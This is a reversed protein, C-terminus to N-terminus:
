EQWRNKFPEWIKRMIFSKIKKFLAVFIGGGIISITITLGNAINDLFPIVWMAYDFVLLSFFLLVGLFGACLICLAMARNWYRVIKNFKEVVIDKKASEEKAKRLQGSLDENRRNLDVKDASLTAIQHDKLASDNRVRQIVDESIFDLESSVNEKSLDEPSKLHERFELICAAVDEDTIKKNKYQESIEEYKKKIEVSTISSLAMKARCVVDFSVMRKSFGFGKNLSFWLVKTIHSLSIAFSHYKEDSIDPNYNLYITTGSILLYKISLFPKHNKGERLFNIFTLIDIDEGDETAGLCYKQINDDDFYKKSDCLIGIEKLKRYFSDRKVIIDREKKCGELISKMAIRGVNQGRGVIIDKAKAFFDDIDKKTKEFYKLSIVPNEKNFERVLDFFDDFQRKYFLGNYGAFNFLIETDLYLTLPTGCAANLAGEADSTIGMYIIMGDAIADIQSKVNEDENELIFSSIFEQFDGNSKNDLLFDCLTQLLQDKELQSLTIRKKAEVYKVIQEFVDRSEKEREHFDYDEDDNWVDSDAIYSSKDDPDKHVFSISSVGLEVVAMPLKFNFYENLETTIEAISFSYKRNRKIYYSVFCAIIESSSKNKEHLYEFLSMTALYKIQNM